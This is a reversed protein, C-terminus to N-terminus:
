PRSHRSHRAPSVADTDVPIKRISSIEKTVKEGLLLGGQGAKAGQGIKIEVANAVQLYRVSVGIKWFCIPSYTHRREEKRGSANGKM